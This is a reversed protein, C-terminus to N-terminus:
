SESQDSRWGGWELRDHYRLGYHLIKKGKENYQEVVCFGMKWENRCKAVKKTRRTGIAMQKTM